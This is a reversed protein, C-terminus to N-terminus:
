FRYGVDIGYMAPEGYFGAAVGFNYNPPALWASLQEYTKNFVNTGFLGVDVKSGMVNKWDARLTVLTRGPIYSLNPTDAYTSSQYSIQAQFDAAGNGNPFSPFNVRPTLTFKNKPVDPLANHSFDVLPGGATYSTEFHTYHADIYTYNFRVDFIPSPVVQLELDLGQITAAAANEIILQPTTGGEETFTVNAQIDNYDDHFGDINFRGKVGGLQWTTKLGLEYDRVSEPLYDPAGPVNANSGGPRYGQRASAYAMVNPAFQYQATLDWTTAQSKARSPDGSVTATTDNRVDALAYAQEYSNDFTRRVGGSLTLSDIVKYELHLYSAWSTTYGSTPTASYNIVTLDPVPGPGFNPPPLFGQLAAPVDLMVGLGFGSPENTETKDWYVGTQWTLKSNFALGSFQMEETLTKSPQVPLALKTLYLLPFPTATVDSPDNEELDHRYSFINKVRFADNLEYTTTNIAGYVKSYNQQPLLDTTRFGSAFEAAQLAVLQSYVPANGLGFPTYGTNVVQDLVFGTGYENVIELYGITDNQFGAFPKVTLTFRADMINNNDLENGTGLDDTYGARWRGLVAARFLVSDEGPIVPGGVAGEFERMNYNGARANVYGQYTDTPKNPALLIAGGTTAKGFLTGQAGALVQVSSLDFFQSTQAGPVEAFYEQVGPTGTSFADTGQGRITFTQTTRSGEGPAVYIQSVADGMEQATVIRLEQLAESNLVGVSIPVNQLNEDRRRATVVIEDLPSATSNATDSPTTQSYSTHSMFLIFLSMASATVGLNSNKV